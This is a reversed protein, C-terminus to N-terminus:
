FQHSIQEPGNKAPDILHGPAFWYLTVQSLGAETQAVTSQYGTLTLLLLLLFLNTLKM